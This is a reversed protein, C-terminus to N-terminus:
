RIVGPKFRPKPTNSAPKRKTNQAVATSSGSPLILVMGLSLQDSKLSNLAKIEAHRNGNGLKSSAIKWLSDGEQVTYSNMGKPVTVPAAKPSGSSKFLADAVKTSPAARGVDPINIVRGLSLAGEATMGPNAKLLLDLKRYSGLEAVAIGGLTDGPAVKYTRGANRKATSKGPAPRDRDLDILGATGMNKANSNTRSALGVETTTSKGKSPLQPEKAQQGLPIALSNQAGRAWSDNNTNATGGAQNGGKGPDSKPKSNNGLKIRNSKGGPKRQNIVALVNNAIEKPPTHSNVPAEQKGAKENAAVVERDRETGSETQDWLVVAGITAILFLLAAVGYREIPQM